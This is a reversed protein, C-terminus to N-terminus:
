DTVRDFEMVTEINSGAGNEIVLREQTLELLVYMTPAAGVVQIFALDTGDLEWWMQSENIGDSTILSGDERFELYFHEGYMNTQDIVMTDSGYYQYQTTKDMEWKGLISPEEPDDGDDNQSVTDSPPTVVPDNEKKCSALALLAVAAFCVAFKLFLKNM